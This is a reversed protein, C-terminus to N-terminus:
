KIILNNLIPTYSVSEQKTTTMTLLEFCYSWLIVLISKLHIKVEVHILFLKKAACICEKLTLFM